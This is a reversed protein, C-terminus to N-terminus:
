ASVISSRGRDPSSDSDNTTPEMPFIARIYYGGDTRGHQFIGRLQEVREQMGILGISTGPRENQRDECLAKGDDEITLMFHATQYDLTVSISTPQHAHKITNAFAEQAIRYGAFAIDDPLAGCSGRVNIRLDIGGPDLKKIAQALPQINGNRLAHVSVRVDTLALRTRARAELIEQDTIPPNTKLHKHARSLKHAIIALQYNFVDHLEAAITVRARSVAVEKEHEAAQRQLQAIELKQRLAQQNSFYIVVSAVILLFLVISLWSLLQDIYAFTAVNAKYTIDRRSNLLDHSSSIASELILILKKANERDPIEGNEITHYKQLDDRVREVLIMEDKSLTFNDKAFRYLVELRNSAIKFHLKYEEESVTDDLSIRVVIEKLNLLTREMEM